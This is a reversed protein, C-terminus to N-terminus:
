ADLPDPYDEALKECKARLDGHALLKRVLRFFDPSALVHMPTADKGRPKKPVAGPGKAALARMADVLKKTPFLDGMEWALVVAQDVGLASALERASCGLKQRLAKVDEPSM